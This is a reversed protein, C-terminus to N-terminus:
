WQSRLAAVTETSLTKAVLRFQEQLIQLKLSIVARKRRESTQYQEYLVQFSDALSKLISASAVRNTAVRCDRCQDPIKGGMPVTDPTSLLNERTLVRAELPHCCLEYELPFRCFPCRARNELCQKMCARCALHGCPVIAVAADSLGDDDDEAQLELQTTQCIGCRGLNAEPDMFLTIQPCPLFDPDSIGALLAHALNLGGQPLIPPLM